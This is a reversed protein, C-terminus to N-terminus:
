AAIRRRLWRLVAGIVPFGEYLQGAADWHDLHAILLGDADFLLESLGEIRREEGRFRFSFTWRAISREGEALRYDVVFSPNEVDEFMQEFVKCFAARGRCDNFPDRFHVDEHVLAALEDLNDPTLTEFLALYRDAPHSM